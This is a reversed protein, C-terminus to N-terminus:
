CRTVLAMRKKLVPFRVKIINYESEKRRSVEEGGEIDVTGHSKVSFELYEGIYKKFFASDMVKLELVGGVFKAKLKNELCLRHVLWNQFAEECDKALFVYRSKMANEYLVHWKQCFDKQIFNSVHMMISHHVAFLERWVRIKLVRTLLTRPIDVLDPIPAARSVIWLNRSRPGISYSIVAKPRTVLYRIGYKEATLDTVGPRWLHKPPVFIKPEPIGVERYIKWAYEFYSEQEQPSVELLQGTHPNVCLYEGYFPMKDHLLGHHVPELFNMNNRIFSVLEQAYSVPESHPTIYLYDIYKAVIGLGLKVDYRKALNLMDRYVDLTVDTGQIRPFGVDDVIVYFPIPVSAPNSLLARTGYKGLLYHEVYGKYWVDAPVLNLILSLLEKLFRTLMRLGEPKFVPESSPINGALLNIIHM